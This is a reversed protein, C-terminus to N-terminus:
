WANAAPDYREVSSLIGGDGRGGVAYLEDDLVAVSFDARAAAMPAMMEWANTAPDYREVRSLASGGAWGGVAYLKGGLVAAAFNARRTVM